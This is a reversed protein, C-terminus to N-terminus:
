RYIPEWFVVISMFIFLAALFIGRIKIFTKFDPMAWGSSYSGGSYVRRGSLGKCLAFAPYIM